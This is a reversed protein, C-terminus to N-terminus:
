DVATLQAAVALWRGSRRQWVDTYRTSAPMGNRVYHTVGHVLAADGLPRVDVEDYTVDNVGPGNAVRVLFEAKGIRKGDALSCTFDASLHADYWAVDADVFARIYGANLRHLECVAEAEEARAEAVAADAGEVV